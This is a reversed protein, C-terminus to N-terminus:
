AGGTIGLGPIKTKEELRRLLLALTWTVVFYSIMVMGWAWFIQFTVAIILRGQRSLEAYGIVMALSSNLVLNVMENGIPPICIRIAQPMIVLKMTGMYTLGISRGAEMQGSPIAAIAGRITECQYAGSNLGLTFIASIFASEGLLWYDFGDVGMDGFVSEYADQIEMGLSLGFHIFMFQVILPTNRFFDTYLTAISNLPRLKWPDFTLPGIKIKSFKGDSTLFLLGLLTLAIGLGFMAFGRPDGVPTFIYEIGDLGLESFGSVGEWFLYLGVPALGGGLTRVIGNPRGEVLGKLNTPATKFMALIVGILFGFLIGFGVIKVTAKFGDLMMDDAYESFEGFNGYDPIEFGVLDNKGSSDTLLIVGQNGVVIGKQYDIMAHDNFSTNIGDPIINHEVINGGDLSVGLYNDPGAFLIISASVVEISKLNEDLSTNYGESEIEVLNWNQASTTTSSLIQGDSSAAYLRYPNYYGVSILNSDSSGTPAERYNWSIGGNTTFLLTGNEGCAIGNNEDLFSIDNLNETFQTEIEQWNSASYRWIAGDVGVLILSNQGILVLDVMGEGPSGINTWDADLGQKMLVSGTSDLVAMSDYASDASILDATATSNMASWTMGEDSSSLMVGGDGFVWTENGHVAAANLNSDVGSEAVDWGTEISQGVAPSIAVLLFVSVIIGVRTKEDLASWSFIREVGVRRSNM